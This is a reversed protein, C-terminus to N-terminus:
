RSKLWIRSFQLTIPMGQHFKPVDCFCGHGILCEAPENESSTVKAKRAEINKKGRCDAVVQDERACFHCAKKKNGGNNNGNRSANNAPKSGGNTEEEYDPEEPEDVVSVRATNSGNYSTPRVSAAAEVQKVTTKLEDMSRKPRKLFNYVEDKCESLTFTTQLTKLSLARETSAQLDHYTHTVTEPMVYLNPLQQMAQAAEARNRKGENSNVDADLLLYLKEADSLPVVNPVAAAVDDANKEIILRAAITMARISDTTIVTDV